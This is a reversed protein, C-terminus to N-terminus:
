RELSSLSQGALDYAGLAIRKQIDAISQLFSGESSPKPAITLRHHEM